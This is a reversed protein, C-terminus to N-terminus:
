ALGLFAEWLDAADATDRRRRGFSMREPHWQVSLIPLYAHELAEIVYEEGDRWYASVKLCDPVMGVGQHHWSNVMMTKGYIQELVSGPCNQILHISDKGEKGTHRDASGIHQIVTGGFYVNILQHGKCIGLVPIGAEIARQLMVAQASDLMPDLNRSGNNEEGWFSPAIDGGGPLVLGDCWSVEEPCLTVRPRKGVYLLANVYNVTYDMKGAIAIVTM